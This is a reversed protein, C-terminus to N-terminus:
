RTVEPDLNVCSNPPITGGSGEMGSLVVFSTGDRVEVLEGPGFTPPTTNAQDAPVGIHSVEYDLLMAGCWACRQRMLDDGITVIIGAIHVVSM